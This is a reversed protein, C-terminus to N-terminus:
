FSLGIAFYLQFVSFVVIVSSMLLIDTDIDIIIDIHVFSKLLKFLVPNDFLNDVITVAFFNYVFAQENEVLLLHHVFVM